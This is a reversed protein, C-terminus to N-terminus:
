RNPTHSWGEIPMLCRVPFSTGDLAQSLADDGLLTESDAGSM